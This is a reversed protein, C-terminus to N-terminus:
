KIFPCSSSVRLVALRRCNLSTQVLSSDCLKVSFWSQPLAELRYVCVCVHMSEMLCARQVVIGHQMSMTGPLICQGVHTSFTDERGPQHCGGKMLLVSLTENLVREGCM